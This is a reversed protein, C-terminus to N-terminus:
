RGFLRKLWAWFGRKRYDTLPVNQGMIRQAINEYAHAVALRKDFVAPTGRDTLLMLLEDEPVVGMLDIALIDLVDDIGRM